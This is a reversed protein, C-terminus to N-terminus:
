QTEAKGPKTADLADRWAKEGFKQVGEIYLFHTSSIWPLPGEKEMRSWYARAAKRVDTM